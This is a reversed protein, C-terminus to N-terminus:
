WHLLESDRKEIQFNSENYSNLRLSMASRKLELPNWLMTSLFFALVNQKLCPLPQGNQRNLIISACTRRNWDIPIHAGKINDSIPHDLCVRACKDFEPTHAVETEGIMLSSRPFIIHIATLWRCQLSLLRLFRSTIDLRTQPIVFLAPSQFPHPHYILTFM